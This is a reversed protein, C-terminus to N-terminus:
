IKIVKRIDEFTTESADNFEPVTMEKGTVKRIAAKLSDMAQYRRNSPYPYYFSIAGYLSWKKIRKTFEKLKQPDIPVLNLNISNGLEDRCACNKTWYDKKRLIKSLKM